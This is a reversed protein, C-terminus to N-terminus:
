YIIKSTQLLELHKNDVTIVGWDSTITTNTPPEITVNEVVEQAQVPEPEEYPSLWARAGSGHKEAGTCGDYDADCISCTIEGEYTGKPNVLLCDYHGCMPCYDEWYYYGAEGGYYGGPIFYGGIAYTPTITIFLLLLLLIRKISLVEQKHYRFDQMALSKLHWMAVLSLLIGLENIENYGGGDV